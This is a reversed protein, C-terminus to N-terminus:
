KITTDPVANVIDRLNAQILNLTPEGESIIYVEVWTNGELNIQQTINPIEGLERFVLKRM